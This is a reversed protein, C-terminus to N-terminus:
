AQRTEQRQTASECWMEPRRASVDGVPKEVSSLDAEGAGRTEPGAHSIVPRHKGSRSPPIDPVSVVTVRVRDHVLRRLNRRVAECAEVPQMGDLVVQVNLTCDRAQEVRFRIVGPTARLVYIVSLGHMFTGDPLHIVDTRRGRVRDIMPWGRGCACRGPLRRGWDGTRYRIMPMGRAELHTVVIEGWEGDPASKDGDLIEVLAHGAVVHMSGEPCEHAIFGAERSGYGDAVPVNFCQELLARRREDCVEGTVFITRLAAVTPISRTQILHEAWRSLTSPYGFLSQPQLRRIIDAYRLMTRPSMDFADILRQNILRDRLRKVRDTRTLEMPSGWLWLERDGLDAGFWRHTLIRAAQDCAQRRRDFYFRLPEGTSGGTCYPHLGGPARSWLLDPLHLRIDHKSLTPADRLLALPDAVEPSGERPSLTERYYRVNRRAHDWLDRLKRAQMERVEDPSTWQERELERLLAFTPRGRLREHIPWIFHRVLTPSM